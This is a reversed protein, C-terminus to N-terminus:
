LPTTTGHINAVFTCPIDARKALSGIPLNVADFREHADLVRAYAVASERDAAVAEVTLSRATRDYSVGTVQVTEPLVAWADALVDSAREAAALHDLLTRTAMTAAIARRADQAATTSTARTFAAGHSLEDLEGSVRVYAPVLAVTGVVCSMTLLLAAVVVVRGVYEVIVNRRREQTLLNHIM